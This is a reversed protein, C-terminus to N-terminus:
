KNVIFFSIKFMIELFTGNNPSINCHRDYPFESETYTDELYDSAGM